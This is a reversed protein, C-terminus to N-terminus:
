TESPNWRAGVAVEVKGDGEIDRAASCVDDSATLNDGMLFCKWDGNRYWVVQKKDRMLIDPNGDGDVYGRALAYCIAVQDDIIQEEFHPPDSTILLALSTLISAITM